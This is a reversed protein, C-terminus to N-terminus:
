EEDKHAVTHHPPSKPPQNMRVDGKWVQRVTAKYEIYILKCLQLFFCDVIENISCCKRRTKVVGIIGGLPSWLSIKPWCSDVRRPACEHSAPLQPAVAEM